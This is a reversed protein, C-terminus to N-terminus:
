EYKIIINTVIALENLIKINEKSRELESLECFIDKSNKFGLFNMLEDRYTKLQKIACERQEQTMENLYLFKKNEAPTYDTM